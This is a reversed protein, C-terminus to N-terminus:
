AKQLPLHEFPWDEGAHRSVVRLPPAEGPWDYRRPESSLGEIQLLRTALPVEGLASNLDTKAKSVEDTDQWEQLEGKACLSQVANRQDEVRKRDVFDSVPVPGQNEARQEAFVLLTSAQKPALDCFAIPGNTGEFALEAERDKLDLRVNTVERAATVHPDLADLIGEFDQRDEVLDEELVANLKLFPIDVLNLLQSYERSGEEPYFFSPDYELSPDTLLIHTLRDDPRGYVGLAEMLHASMTKRGGAISGILPLEGEQTYQEVLRYCLNAYRTDDGRLRIDELPQGNVEPVHFSLEIPAKGNKPPRGLVEECFELWRNKDGEIEEGTTPDKRSQGLLQAEGYARGLRTTIVQVSAPLLGEDRHLEFITETIVQPSKGTTILLNYPPERM